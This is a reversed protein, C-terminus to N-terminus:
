EYDRIGKGIPFRPAGAPTKNQYRVTYPLGIVLEPNQVWQRRQEHSEAPTIRFKRGASDEVVILALGEHTGEAEEVDIIKMEEEFTLKYKLLSNCRKCQYSAARIQEPTPNDCLLQRVMVGEYGQNLYHSLLQDIELPDTASQSEIVHVSYYEQDTPWAEVLLNYRQDYPLLDKEIIDYVYYNLQDHQPHLNKWRKVVSAITNFDWGHTYFEGDLWSGEPLRSLYDALESRIHAFQAPNKILNRRERSQIVIDGDEDLSVLARIGDLKPQVVVPWCHILSPTYENALMPKGTTFPDNEDCGEERYGSQYKDDYKKRMELLAQEELNRGSNNLKIERTGYQLKGGIQGFRWVIASIRPVFRIEWM